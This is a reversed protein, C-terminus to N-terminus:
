MNGKKIKRLIASKLCGWLSSYSSLAERAIDVGEQNLPKIDPVQDVQAVEILRDNSYLDGSEFLAMLGKTPDLKSVGVIVFFCANHLDQFSAIRDWNGARFAQVFDTTGKRNKAISGVWGLQQFDAFIGSLGLRQAVSSPANWHPFSFTNM